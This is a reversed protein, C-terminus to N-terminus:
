REILGTYVNIIKEAIPKWGYRTESLRRAYEGMQNALKPSDILKIIKKALQEPARPPVLFGSRGDEVAEPLGGVATAIVPRGFAYAVQLSGSQTSSYYPYVVCVALEMLNGISEVPIYRTDFIVQDSLNYEDVQKRLKNMDINKSPFGAIILRSHRQKRVIEFADILDPLGKSPSLLGFFLVINENDQLRYRKRLDEGKGRMGSANQFISENGHPILYIDSKPYNHASLFRKRNESAHFFIASFHKFTGKYMRDIQSSLINQKERRQFEHCIQTLILGKHRLRALFITEFPFKIIGFQVVDPKLKILYNTLRIWEIVLKISRFVRRFFWKIKKWKRYFSHDSQSKMSEPDFVPWINLRNEVHFNHPFDSLEYDTGTILTVDVNDDALATCLQFAYHILGGSSNFEVVALKM